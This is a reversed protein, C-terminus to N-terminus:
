KLDELKLLDLIQKNLIYAKTNTPPGIFDEPWEIKIEPLVLSITNTLDTTKIVKLKEVM